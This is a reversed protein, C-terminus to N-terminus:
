GQKGIYYLEIPDIPDIPNEQEMKTNRGHRRLLEGGKNYFWFSYTLILKVKGMKEKTTRHYYNGGTEFATKKHIMSILETECTVPEPLITYARGVCDPKHADSGGVRVKDYKKALKLANENSEESECCNFTEVFDFRKMLEPSRRYRKTNAFSLYKEGCPHAPGLVGGNRHVFDILVSVRMGRLELLRM